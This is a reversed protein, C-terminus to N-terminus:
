KEQPKFVQSELNFSPGKPCVHSSPASPGPTDGGRRGYIVVEGLVKDDAKRVIMTTQRVMSPNGSVLVRDAMRGVYEPGYRGATFLQTRYQPFATGDPGFDEKPLRVVEYIHVGGDIVCLRDVERDLEAKQVSGCASLGLAFLTLTVGAGAVISPTRVRAEGREDPPEDSVAPPQGRDM